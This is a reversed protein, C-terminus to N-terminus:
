KKVIDSNRSDIIHNLQSMTGYLFLDQDDVLERNGDLFVQQALMFSAQSIDKQAFNMYQSFEMLNPRRFYGIYYPLEGADVDGQVIIVFVRKVKKAVKLEAIKQAIQQRIDLPLKFDINHLVVAEPPTAPQATNMQVNQQSTTQTNSGNVGNMTPNLNQEMSYKHNFHYIEM